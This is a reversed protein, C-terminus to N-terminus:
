FELILSFIFMHVCDPIIGLIYGIFIFSGFENSICFSDFSEPARYLAEVNGQPM